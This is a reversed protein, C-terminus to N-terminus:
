EVVVPLLNIFTSINMIAAVSIISFVALTFDLIYKFHLSINKFEQVGFYDCLFLLFNFIQGSGWLLILIPVFMSIIFVVASIGFANKLAIIGGGVMKIAEGVSSGVIPVANSIVLRFARAGASDSIKATEYYTSSIIIFLATIISFLTFLTNKIFLSLCALNTGYSVADILAISFFLSVIFPLLKNLFIQCASLFISFYISHAKAYGVNGGSASIIGITPTAVGLFTTIDKMYMLASQIIEYATTLINSFLLASVSFTAADFVGNKNLANKITKALILIVISIICLKLLAKLAEIYEGYNFFLKYIDLPEKSEKLKDLINKAVNTNLNYKEKEFLEKYMLNM